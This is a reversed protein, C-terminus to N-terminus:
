KTSTKTCCQSVTLLWNVTAASLSDIEIFYIGNQFYFYVIGISFRVMDQLNDQVDFCGHINPAKYSLHGHLQLFM